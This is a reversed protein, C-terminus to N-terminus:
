VWWVVDKYMGWRHNQIWPMVLYKGGIVRGGTGKGDSKKAGYSDPHQPICARMEEWTYIVMGHMLIIKQCGRIDRCAM